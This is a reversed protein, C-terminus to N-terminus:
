SAAAPVSSVPRLRACPKSGPVIVSTPEARLGRSLLADADDVSLPQAFLYGQGFECHGDCLTNRQVEHEIGEAVTELNLTKSLELMGQVIPSIPSGDTITDIFTKDIKLIDIPFQRLYSLSSFGTGFDDIALRVGLVHLQQLRRAATVPDEVLVSETIELILSEAPLGSQALARAVQEVLDPTAIQRGSLNVAMTLHMSPHFRRWLAATRCAEGLVWQGIAVIAGNTEASPVFAVPSIVGLTPHDWRLLAEFGAVTNARLAIVPQYVLRLQGKALAQPLDRDLERQRLAAARMAPEYMVWKAKGTTKAKSMAVDADRMMSSATCSVDGIAIGISASLVIQQIGLMFPTTLSQLVREAVTEAEDLARGSEEILIAFEDGGLRSVTDLSRVASTVRTALERLIQDGAEHGMSDNVLKFGDLDLYVVAVGLGSRATRDLAHELRDHFLARNALGTLSDHFANHSLAQEARKRDTIDRLNIVIGGVVPDDSLNAARIGFWRETGDAHTAQVEADAVVGTTSMWRALVTRAEERDHPSLAGIADMGTTPLGPRGLMEALNPAENMIRGDQDVVIVADSSNEALAAYFRTSHELAAQQRNRAKVLRTSRVYALLVLSVVAAFLPIPHPDSGRRFEWVEILGPVLLPFLTIFVRGNTVTAITLTEDRASRPRRGPLSSLGLAVAGVMWGLDLWRSLAESSGLLLSVFDSTLWLVAGCTLFVGSRGRLRRSIMAQALVGILAADLVPYATWVVRTSISYSADAVVDRVVAFQMVVVMAMVAFSGVDLLGDVDIRRLGHGGVVLSSVGVALAVYVALWFGDAISVDALAGNFLGMVYYVSDGVASFTVGAAVCGWAFRWRPPQRSVGIWAVVAAGATVLLYTGHGFAGDPYVVHAGCVGAAAVLWFLWSRRAFVLRRKPQARLGIPAVQVPPCAIM